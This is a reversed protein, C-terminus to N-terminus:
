ESAPSVNEVGGVNKRSKLENEIQLILSACQARLAIFIDGGMGDEISPPVPITLGTVPDVNPFPLISGPVKLLISAQSVLAQEQLDLSLKSFQAILSELKHLYEYDFLGSRFVWMRLSPFRENREAGWYYTLGCAAGRSGLVTEYWNTYPFSKLDLSRADRDSWSHVSYILYWQYGWHQAHWGKTRALWLDPIFGLNNDYWGTEGGSKKIESIRARKDQGLGGFWIDFLGPPTSAWDKGLPAGAIRFRPFASRVSALYTKTAEIQASPTEDWGYFFLNDQTLGVKEVQGLFQNVESQLSKPDRKEKAYGSWNIVNFYQQGAEHNYQILELPARLFGGYINGADMGFRVLASADSANHVGSTTKLTFKEPLTIPLVSVTLSINQPTVGEAEVKSTISYDGPEADRPISVELLFAQLTFPKVEIPPPPSEWIIDAYWQNEFSPTGPKAPGINAFGLPKISAPLGNEGLEAKLNSLAKATAFVVIQTGVIEGRAGSIAHHNHFETIPQGKAKIFTVPPVMAVGFDLASSRTMRLQMVNHLAAANQDIEATLSNLLQQGLADRSSVERRFSELSMRAASVEASLAAFADIQQPISQTGMAATLRKYFDPVPKAKALVGAFAEGTQERFRNANALTFPQGTFTEGIQAVQKTIVSREAEPIYTSALAITRQFNAFDAGHDRTVAVRDVYLDYDRKPNWAFFNFERIKSPNFAVGKQDIGLREHIPIRVKLASKPPIVVHLTDPRPGRGPHFVMGQPAEQTALDPLHRDSPNFYDVELHSFEGLDIANSLKTQVSPWSQGALFRIKLSSTGTSAWDRSIAAESGVLAWSKLSDSSEFDDIVVVHPDFFSPKQSAIAPIGMWVFLSLLALTRKM